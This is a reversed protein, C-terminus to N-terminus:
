RYPVIQERPSEANALPLLGPDSGPRPTYIKHEVAKSEMKKAHDKYEDKRKRLEDKEKEVAALRLRNNEEAQRAAITPACMICCQFDASYHVGCTPM